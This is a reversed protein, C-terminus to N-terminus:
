FLSSIKCIATAILIFGLIDFLSGILNSNRKHSEFVGGSPITVHPRVIETQLPHNIWEGIGIFFIGLCLLLAHANKIGKIDFLLSIFTGAGGLLVFVHYWYEIKLWSFFKDM